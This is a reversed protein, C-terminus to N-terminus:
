DKLTELVNIFKEFSQYTVCIMKSKHKSVFKYIESEDTTSLNDSCVYFKPQKVNWEENEIYDTRFQEMLSLSPFVFVQFEFEPHGLSYSLMVRTKGSGCFMKLVCDDDHEEIARIADLQYKRLTTM